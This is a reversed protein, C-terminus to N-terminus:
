INDIGNATSRYRKKLCKNHLKYIKILANSVMILAIVILIITIWFLDANQVEVKNIVNATSDVTKTDILGMKPISIKYKPSYFLFNGKYISKNETKSIENTEISM